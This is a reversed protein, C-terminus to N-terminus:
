LPVAQPSFPRKPVRRVALIIAQVGAAAFDKPCSTQEIVEPATLSSRIPVAYSVHGRTSWASTARRAGVLCLRLSQLGTWSNPSWRCFMRGTQALPLIRRLRNRVLGPWQSFRRDPSVRLESSASLRKNCGAKEIRAYPKLRWCCLAACSLSTKLQSFSQATPAAAPDDFRVM